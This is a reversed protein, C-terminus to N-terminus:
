ASVESPKAAQRATAWASALEYSSENLEHIVRDFTDALIGEDPSIEMPKAAEDCFHYARIVEASLADEPEYDFRRRLEEKHPFKHGLLILNNIERVLYDSHTSVIIRHGARVLRALLRALRRQNDPHLNLEPEDIM